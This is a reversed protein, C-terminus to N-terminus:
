GRRVDADRQGRDYLRVQVRILRGVQLRCGYVHGKRQGSQRPHPVAGARVDTAGVPDLHRREPLLPHRKGRARVGTRMPLHDPSFFHVSIILICDKRDM